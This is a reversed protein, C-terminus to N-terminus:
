VGHFKGGGDFDGTADSRHRRKVYGDFPNNRRGYEGKVTSDAISVPSVTAVLTEERSLTKFSDNRRSMMEIGDEYRSSLRPGRRHDDDEEDPVEVVKYRKPLRKGVGETIGFINFYLYKGVVPAWVMVAILQGYTWNSSETGVVKLVEIVAKLYIGVYVLLGFELCFWLLAMFVPRVRRRLFLVASNRLEWSDLADDLRNNSNLSFWIQDLLLVSATVCGLMLGSNMSQLVANLGDLSELCYTMPSPNGGCLDIPGSEKFYAWLTDYDPMLSKTAIVLAMVFVGVVITTMYWWRVGLRMLGVQILLVPLVGNISLMQVVEVNLVAEGFSSTSSLMASEDDSAFIIITAFQISAVFFGQVEQFEVLASTLAAAARSRSVVEQHEGARQWPTKQQQLGVMSSDTTRSRRTGSMHEQITYLAALIPQLWSTFLNIFVYVAMALAAQLIYSVVVKFLRFILLLDLVFRGLSLISVGPGAIDSNIISSAGDCYGQLGEFLATVSDKTGSIDLTTINTSCSGLSYDQCSGKICSLTDKLIQTGNFQSLTSFGLGLGVTSLDGSDVVMGDSSAYLAAAGLTLCNYLTFSSNFMLEPTSCASVCDRWGAGTAVGNGDTSSNTYCGTDVFSITPPQQSSSQASASQATDKLQSLITEFSTTNLVVQFASGGFPRPVFSQQTPNILELPVSYEYSNSSTDTSSGSASSSSSSSDSTSGDNSASSGSNAGSNAGSDTGSSTSSGTGSDAGSNTGANSSPESM